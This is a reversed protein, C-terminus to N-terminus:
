LLVLAEKDTLSVETEGMILVLAFSVSNSEDGFYKDIPFSKINTRVDGPKLISQIHQTQFLSFSFYYVDKVFFSHFGTTEAARFPWERPLM